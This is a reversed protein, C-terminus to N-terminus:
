KILKVVHKTLKYKYFCPEELEPAVHLVKVREWFDEIIDGEEFREDLWLDFPHDRWDPPTKAIYLNKAIDPIFPLGLLSKLFTSRKM